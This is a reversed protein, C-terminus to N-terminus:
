AHVWLRNRGANKAAYLADDANKILRAADKDDPGASAVGVSVTLIKSEPNGAHVINSEAVADVIRQALVIAESIETEPLIISIEEGGYRAAIDTSRVTRVLIDAIEKLAVDGAQHGYLDNYEKFHDLDTMLLSLTSKYRRSRTWETSMKKDFLHRNCLGTLHDTTAREELKDLLKRRDTIDRIFGIAGINKEGQEPNISLSLELPFEVGQSNLGSLEITKGILKPKGTKMFRKLGTHHASRYREPMLMALDHGLLESSPYGFLEEAAPNVFTIKGHSNACIISDRAAHVIIDYRPNM